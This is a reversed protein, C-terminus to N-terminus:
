KSSSANFRFITKNVKKYFDKQKMYRFFLLDASPLPKSLLKKKRNSAVIRNLMRFNYKRRGVKNHLNAIVKNLLNYYWARREYSSRSKLMRERLSRSRRLFSSFIGSPQEDYVALLSASLTFEKVPNQVGKFIEFEKNKQAIAVKTKFFPWRDKRQWFISSYGQKPLQSWALLQTYDPLPVISFSKQGAALSFTPKQKRAVEKNFHIVKALSRNM